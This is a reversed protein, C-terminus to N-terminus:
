TPGRNSRFVHALGSAIHGLVVFGAGLLFLGLLYGSISTADGLVVIGGAALLLGIAGFAFAGAAAAPGNMKRWNPLDILFGLIEFFLGPIESIVQFM